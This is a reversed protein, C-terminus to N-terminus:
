DVFFLYSHFLKKTHSRFSDILSRFVIQLIHLLINADMPMWQDANPAITPM